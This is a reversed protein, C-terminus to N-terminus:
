FEGTCSSKCNAINVVTVKTFDQMPGKKTNNKIKLM